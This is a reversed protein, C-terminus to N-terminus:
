KQSFISAKISKDNDINFISKKLKIDNNFFSSKSIQKLKKSSFNADVNDKLKKEDNKKRNQMFKRMQVEEEDEIKFVRKFEINPLELEFNKPNYKSFYHSKRNKDKLYKNYLYNIDNIINEENNEIKKLYEFDWKRKKNLKKIEEFKDKLKEYGYVSIVPKVLDLLDNQYDKLQKGKKSKKLKNLKDFYNESTLYLTDLIDKDEYTLKFHNQNYFTKSFNYLMNKNRKIVKNKEKIEYENKNTKDNDNIEENKKRESSDSKKDLISQFINNDNKYKNNYRETLCEIKKLEDFIKDEEPIKLPDVIKGYFDIINQSGRYNLKLYNKNKNNETIFFSSSKDSSKSTNIDHSIKREIEPKKLTKAKLLAKNKNLPMKGKMFQNYSLITRKLKTKPETKNNNKNTNESYFVKFPKKETSTLNFKLKNSFDFKLNQNTYNTKSSPMFPMFKNSKITSSSIGRLLLNKNSLNTFKKKFLNKDSENKNM